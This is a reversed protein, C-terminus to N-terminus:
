LFRGLLKYAVNRRVKHVTYWFSIQSVMMTLAISNRRKNVPRISRGAPEQTFADKLLGWGENFESHSIMKDHNTDLREFLGGPPADQALTVVTCLLLLLL